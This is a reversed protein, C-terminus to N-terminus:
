THIKFVKSLVLSHTNHFFADKLDVSAMWAGPETMCLVNKISEMKFYPAEVCKNLKKLNVIMTFTGEPGPSLFINSFRKREIGNNREKIM